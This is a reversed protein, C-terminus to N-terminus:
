GSQQMQILGSQLAFQYLEADTNLELKRMAGCKQASITKVSRGQERAIETINEGSAYRVIVDLERRTLKKRIQDVRHASTAGALLERISPGLYEEKALVNVIAVYILELRDQKSVVANAGADLARAILDADTTM